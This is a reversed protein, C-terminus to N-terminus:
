PITGAGALAPGMEAAAGQQSRPHHRQRDGPLADQPPLTDSIFVEGDPVNGIVVNPKQELPQLYAPGVQDQSNVIEISKRQCHDHHM